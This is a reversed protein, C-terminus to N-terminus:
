KYSRRLCGNQKKCIKQPPITKIVVEEVINHVETWWEQPVTDILDLGKFRNTVEVINDNPIQNWNYRFPRTTKGVKKLKLRFKAILIKCDAMKIVYIIILFFFNISFIFKFIIQPGPTMIIGRKSVFISFILTMVQHQTWRWLWNVHLRKGSADGCRNWLPMM